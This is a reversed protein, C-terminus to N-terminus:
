VEISEGLLILGIESIKNEDDEVSCLETFNIDVHTLYLLCIELNCLLQKNVIVIFSGSIQFQNSISFSIADGAADLESSLEFSWISSM